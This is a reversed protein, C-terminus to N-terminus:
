FQYGVEAFNAILALNAHELSTVLWPVEGCLRREHLNFLISFRRELWPKAKSCFLVIRLLLGMTLPYGIDEILHCYRRFVPRRPNDVVLFNLVQRCTEVLIFDNLPQNDFQPLIDQLHQRLTRTFHNHGYKPEVAAIPGMLYDVFEDKFRDFSRATKSYTSFWRALDKQSRHGDVKGTYHGMAQQFDAPALLTPNPLSLSEQRTQLGGHYRALRIALTTEAKRRLHGVNQAQEQDSDKTLLSGDYLFPYHSLRNGLPQEELRAEAEARSDSLICRLRELAAYQDSTVFGNVLARVRRVAPDTAPPFQGDFLGILEPIAWQERPQSYWFNILTYCCRNLVYKFEREANPDKALSFLAKAVTTDPYSDGQLLLHRFRALLERSSEQQRWHQLHQYIVEELKAPPRNSYDSWSDLSDWPSM